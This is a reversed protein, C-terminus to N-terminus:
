GSFIFGTFICDLEPLKVTLEVEHRSNTNNSNGLKSTVRFIKQSYKFLYWYFNPLNDGFANEQKTHLLITYIKTGDMNINEYKNLYQKLILKM